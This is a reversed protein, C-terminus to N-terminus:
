ALGDFWAAVHELYLRVKASAASGQAPLVATVAQREGTWGPLLERLAGAAILHRAAVDFPRAVGCGGLVADVLGIGDRSVTRVSLEVVCDVEGKSFKWRTNSAEDRRAYIVARHRALEEPHAPEGFSALYAASACVVPRTWGLRRAVLTSDSLRGIHLVLDLGEDVVASASNTIVTEVKLEPQRDLFDGLRTLLAHRLGPHM